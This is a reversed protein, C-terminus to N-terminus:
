GRLMTVPVPPKYNIGLHAIIADMKAHLEEMRTAATEAAKMQGINGRAVKRANLIEVLQDVLPEYKLGDEKAICDCCGKAGQFGPKIEMRDTHVARINARTANRRRAKQATLSTAAATALAGM